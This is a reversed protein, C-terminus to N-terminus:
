RSGKFTVEIDSELKVTEASVGSGEDEFGLFVTHYNSTSNVDIFVNYKIFGLLLTGPMAPVTAYPRYPTIMFNRLRGYSQLSSWTRNATTQGDPDYGVYVHISSTGVVSEDLWNPFIRITTM